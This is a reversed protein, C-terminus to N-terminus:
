LSSNNGLSAKRKLDYKNLKSQQEAPGILSHPDRSLVLKFDFSLLGLVKSCVIFIFMKKQRTQSKTM